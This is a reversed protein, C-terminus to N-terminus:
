EQSPPQGKDRADMGGFLKEVRGQEFGFWYRGFADPPRIRWLWSLGGPGSYLNEQAFVPDEMATELDVFEVGRGKWRQLLPGIEALVLVNMHVLVTLPVPRGPAVLAADVGVKLAEDMHQHWDEVVRSKLGDDGTRLARRYIYAHLWETTAITVPATREGLASLGATM